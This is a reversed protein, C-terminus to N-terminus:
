ILQASTGSSLPYIQYEIILVSKQMSIINNELQKFYLINVHSVCVFRAM